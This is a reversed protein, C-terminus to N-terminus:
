NRVKDAKATGTSGDSGTAAVIYRFVVVGGRLLSDRVKATSLFCTGQLANRNGTGGCQRLGEPRPCRAPLYKDRPGRLPIRWSSHGERPFSVVSRVEWGMPPEDPTGSVLRVLILIHQASLHLLASVAQQSQSM